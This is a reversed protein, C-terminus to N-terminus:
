GMRQRDPPPYRSLQVDDHRFSEQTPYFHLRLGLVAISCARAPPSTAGCGALREIELLVYGNGCAELAVVATGARGAGGKGLAGAFRAGM